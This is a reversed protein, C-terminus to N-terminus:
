NESSVSREFQTIKRSTKLYFILSIFAFLSACWFIYESIQQLTANNLGSLLSILALGQLTMKIKGFINAGLKISRHFFLVSLPGAVVTFLVILIELSIITIIVYPSLRGPAALVLLGIVFIKDVAPDLLKGFTSEQGRYRAHLGDVVDTFWAILFLIVVWIEMSAQFAFYIPILLLARTLTILNAPVWDPIIRVWGSLNERYFSFGPFQNKPRVIRTQNDKM